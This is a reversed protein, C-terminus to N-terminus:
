ASGAHQHHVHVHAIHAPGLGPWALGPALLSHLARVLRGRRSRSRSSCHLNPSVSHCENTVIREATRISKRKSPNAMAVAAQHPGGHTLVRKCGHAHMLHLRPPLQLWRATTPAQLEQVQAHPVTHPRAQTSTWACGVWPQQTATFFLTKAPAWLDSLPKASAVAVRLSM